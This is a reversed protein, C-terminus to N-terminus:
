AEGGFTALVSIMCFPNGRVLVGKVKMASAIFTFAAKSTGHHLAPDDSRPKNVAPV